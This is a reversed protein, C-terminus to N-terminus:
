DEASAESVKKFDDWGGMLKAKKDRLANFLDGTMSLNKVSEVTVFDKGKKITLAVM